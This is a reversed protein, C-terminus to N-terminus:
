SVICTIHIKNIKRSGLKANRGSLIMVNHVQNGTTHHCIQLQPFARRGRGRGEEGRGKGERM